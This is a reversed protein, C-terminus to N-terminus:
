ISQLEPPLGEPFLDPNLKHNLLKKFYKQVYFLRATSKLWGIEEDDLKETEYMKLVDRRRKGEPVSIVKLNEWYKKREPMLSIMKENISDESVIKLGITQLYYWDYKWFVGTEKGGSEYFKRYRDRMQIKLGAINKEIKEKEQEPSNEPKYLKIRHPEQNIRNDKGILPMLNCQRLIRSYTRQGYIRLIAKLPVNSTYFTPYGKDFAIDRRRVIEEGVFIKSEDQHPIRCSERNPLGTSEDTLCFEDFFMCGTEMAKFAAENEATYYIAWEYTISEKYVYPSKLYKQYQNLLKLIITKGTGPNGFLFAGKQLFLRDQIIQPTESNEHKMSIKFKQPIDQEFKEDRCALMGLYDILLENEETIKFWDNTSLIFERFTMLM